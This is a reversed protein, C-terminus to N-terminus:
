RGQRLREALVENMGGEAGIKAAAKEVDYEVRHYQILGDEDATAFCARWDGDRSQGVSGVNVIAKHHPRARFENDIEAPELFKMDRTIIGPQHTHGIFCLWDVQMFNEAIKGSMGLLVDMKRLYEVVPNRPAAHVFLWSDRAQRHPLGKLYQWRERRKENEAGGGPRPMVMRRHREVSARAVPTFYDAGYILAFDHNGCLALDCHERVADVCAVPDSGYGVIDGLCILADPRLREVEALVAELAEYNAHIDSIIAIM